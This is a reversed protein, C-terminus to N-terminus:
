RPAPFIPIARQPVPHRPLMSAPPQHQSRVFSAATALQERRAAHAQAQAKPPELLQHLIPTLRLNAMLPQNQTTKEM